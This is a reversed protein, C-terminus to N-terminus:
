LVTHVVCSYIHARVHKHHYCKILASSRHTVVRMSGPSQKRDLCVEKGNIMGGNKSSQLELFVNDPRMVADFNM